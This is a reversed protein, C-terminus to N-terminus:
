RYGQQGFGFGKDNPGPGSHISLSQGAQRVQPFYYPRTCTEVMNVKNCTCRLADLDHSGRAAITIGNAVM